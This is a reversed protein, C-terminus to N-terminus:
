VFCFLLFNQSSVFYDKMVKVFRKGLFRRLQTRPTETGTFIFLRSFFYLLSPSISGFCFGCLLAQLQHKYIINSLCFCSHGPVPEVTAVRAAGAWQFTFPPPPPPTVLPHTICRIDSYHQATLVFVFARVFLCRTQSRCPWVHTGAAVGSTYAFM